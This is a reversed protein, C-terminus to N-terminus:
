FHVVDRRSILAAGVFDSIELRKAKAAVRHFSVGVVGVESSHSAFVISCTGSRAAIPWKPDRRIPFFMPAEFGLALPGNRLATALSQVCVDIDTGEATTGGVMAWDFNSGPKWHRGRSRENRKSSALQPM